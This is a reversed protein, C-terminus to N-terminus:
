DKFQEKLEGYNKMIYMIQPKTLGSLETVVRVDFMNTVGSKQVAVYADFEDKTIGEVSVDTSM